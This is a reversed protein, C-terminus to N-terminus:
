LSTLTKMTGNGPLSISMVAVHFHLLSLTQVILQMEEYSFCAGARPSLLFAESTCSDVDLFEGAFLVMWVLCLKM